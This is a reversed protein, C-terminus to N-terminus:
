VRWFHSYFSMLADFRDDQRIDGLHLWVGRALGENRAMKENEPQKEHYLKEFFFISTKTGNKTKSRKPRFQRFNQM